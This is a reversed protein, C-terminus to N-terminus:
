HLLLNSADAGTQCVFSVVCFPLKEGFWVAKLSGLLFMNSYVSIRNLVHFYFFSANFTLSFSKAGAGM